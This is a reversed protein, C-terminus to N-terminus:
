TRPAIEKGPGKSYKKDMPKRDVMLHLEQNCRVAMINQGLVPSWSVVSQVM